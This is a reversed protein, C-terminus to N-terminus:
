RRAEELVLQDYLLRSLVEVRERSPEWALQTEERLADPHLDLLWEPEIASALRVLVRSRGAGRREEADVAVLLDAERVASDPSLQAAGGSALLVEAGRRRAVRDPFGALVAIQIAEDRSGKRPGEPPALRLLQAVAQEHRSSRRLDKRDMLDLVDKRGTPAASRHAARENLM